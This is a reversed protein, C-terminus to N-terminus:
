WFTRTLGVQFTVVQQDDIGLSLFYMRRLRYSFTIEYVRDSTATVKSSLRQYFSVYFNGFLRRSIYLGLPVEPGFELSFQEFGLREVFLGEIPAFLAGTGVAALIDGLEQRLGAEGSTFIGEVHGLAALMQERSLGPPTSSVNVSLDTVLGSVSVLIEYRERQGFQNTAVATTSAHLSVRVETDAPSAYRAIITGGPEIRLRAAALRISGGQTLLELSLNPQSLTGGVNGAGAVLLSMNPPSVVVDEGMRLSVDFSPNFPLVRVEPREFREPIAFAVSARSITVGRARGRVEADAFLLSGIAGTASLGADIRMSVSEQFGLLNSEEIRLADAVILLRADTLEPGGLLVYGGPEVSITGGLSSAASMRNVMLRDGDFSLDVAVDTFRNRFNNLAITGRDLILGGSALPDDLTGGIIIEGDITGSTEATDVGPVLAALVDLDQQDISVTLGVPQDTPVTFSAWDWPVFGRATAQHGGVALIVDELEIRDDGFRITIARLRDFAIQGYSPDIVEVSGIIEPDSAPGLISLDASMTGGPTNDGLWPRLRSLDFNQAALDLQIRGDAYVPDGAATINLDESVALFEDLTVVGQVASARATISDIRQVDIGVNTATMVFSGSPSDLCGSLDLTANVVGGTLRPLRDLLDRTEAGADTAWYPSWRVFDWLDRPSARELRASASAACRTEVDYEAGELAYVQNQRTLTVTWDRVVGRAYAASFTASDLRKDNISAEAVTGQATVAPDDWTGTVSGDADLTGRLRLYDGVHSLDLGPVTVDGLRRLDLGALEYTLDLEKTQVQAYGSVTLQLDRSTLVATAITVRNDEFTLAATATTVPLGYATGDELTFTGSAITDAFSPEGTRAGPLFVGSVRIDDSSILGTLGLDRDLLDALQEARLRDVSGAASFRIRSTRLGSASGSLRAQAPFMRVVASSVDIRDGSYSFNASLQDLRIDRFRGNFIRLAGSVNPNRIDGSVRGSFFATGAADLRSIPRLAALSLSEATVRLDTRRERLTGSIRLSGGAVGAVELDIGRPRGEILEISGAASQFALGMVSGRRVVGQVTVRPNDAPGSISFRGRLVGSPRLDPPLPLGALRLNAARGEIALTPRRGLLIRGTLQVAGGPYLFQASRLFLDGERYVATVRADRATYGRITVLPIRATVQIVPNHHRGTVRVTVPGTGSVALAQAEAPLPLVRQLAAFDACPISTVLDLVPNVFGVLTGTLRVDSGAARGRVDVAARNALLAVRGSVATIDEGVAQFRVRADIVRVSGTYAARTEGDIRRFDAGVLARLRGGLVDVGGPKGLYSTWYAASAGRADIDLRLRSARTDYIGTIRALVLRSPLGRASLHFAYDPYGSADVTGHADTFRNVAPRKPTQALYDVFVGSGGTINIVGKFPPRRPDPIPQLLEKINLTGDPLRVLYITPGAVDVTSVSQAGLGGLLIDWWGYRIKVQRASALTGSGASRTRLIRVDELVATGLPTVTAKGISVRREFRRELEDQLIVAAQGALRRVQGITHLGGVLLVLLVPVAMILAAVLRQPRTM